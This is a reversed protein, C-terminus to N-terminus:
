IATTTLLETDSESAIASSSLFEQITFLPIALLVALALVRVTIPVSLCVFRTIFDRNDIAKNIRYVYLIGVVLSALRIALSAGDLWTYKLGIYIFPDSILVYFIGTVLLYLMKDREPVREVRLDEILSKVRWIYM